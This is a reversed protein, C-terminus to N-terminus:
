GTFWVAYATATRLAPGNAASYVHIHVANRLCATGTTNMSVNIPGTIDFYGALNAPDPSMLRDYLVTTTNTDIANKSIINPTTSVDKPVVVVLRIGSTFALHSYDYYVRIKAIRFKSGDFQSSADGQSMDVPISTWARSSGDDSSLTGVSYQKVEPLLAKPIRAVVKATTKRRKPTGPTGFLRRKTPPMGSM